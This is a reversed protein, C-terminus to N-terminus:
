PLESPMALVVCGICPGFCATDLRRVPRLPHSSKFVVSFLIGNLWERGQPYRAIKFDKTEIIKFQNNLGYGPKALSSATVTAGRLTESIWNSAM